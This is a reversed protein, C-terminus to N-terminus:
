HESASGINPRQYAENVTLLGQYHRGDADYDANYLSSYHHVDRNAGGSFSAAARFSQPGRTETNFTVSKSTTLLVQYGGGKVFEVLQKRDLLKSGLADQGFERLMDILLRLKKEVGEAIIRDGPKM